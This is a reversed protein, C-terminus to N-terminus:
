GRGVIWQRGTREVKVGLLPGLAAPDRRVADVSLSGSFPRHRMAPDVSFDVGTSRRLDRVVRELPDGAYNLQGTTWSGAAGADPAPEAKLVRAGDRTELLHGAPIAVRASDPDALVEGESVVVRTTRDDRSVDFVTGVDVMELDGARVHVPDGNGNLRLLLQGEDLTVRRGIFSAVRVKTGGNLVLTDGAALTITRMEGPATQYTEGRMQPVVTIGLAGLGALSAAVAWGWPALRRGQRVAVPSPLAALDADFGAVSDAMAQYAEAHQPDEELWITFADWDDFAPDHTRALWGAAAISLPDAPTM